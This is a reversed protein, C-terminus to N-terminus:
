KVLKSYRDIGQQKTEKKAKVVPVSRLKRLISELAQIEQETIAEM